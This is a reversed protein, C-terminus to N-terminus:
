NGSAPSDNDVPTTPTAPNPHTHAILKKAQERRAAAAASTRQSAQMQEPTQPERDALTPLTLFEAAQLMAIQEDADPSNAAAAKLAPIANSSGFQKTAEIAALRIEKEPNTLDNVIASLADADDRTSLDQLRSAEAEIYDQKQEPTPSNTVDPAPSITADPADTRRVTRAVAVPTTTKVPAPPPAPNESAPKLFIIIGIALVAMLMLALAFKLRM